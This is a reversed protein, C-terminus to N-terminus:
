RSGIVSMMLANTGFGNCKAGDVVFFLSNGNTWTFSTTFTDGTTSASYTGSTAWGSNFTTGQCLYWTGTGCTSMGNINTVTVNCGLSRKRAVSYNLDNTAVIVTDISVLDGSAKAAYKSELPIGKEYIDKDVILKEKSWVCLGNFEPSPYTSQSGVLLMAGNTQSPGFPYMQITGWNGFADMYGSYLKLDWFDWMVVPGDTGSNGPGKIYRSGAVDTDALTTGTLPIYVAAAGAAAANSAAAVIQAVSNGGLTVADGAPNVVGQGWGVGAMAVVMAILVSRKMKCGEDKM